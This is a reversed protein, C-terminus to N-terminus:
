GWLARLLAMAAMGTLVTAILSRTRVAVVLTPVIALVHLNDPPLALSAGGPLLAQQALLAAMVAVPVYRLWDALWSPLSMRRLALMPLVRPILTVVGAGLITWLVFPRIEM